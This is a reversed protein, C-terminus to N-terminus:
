YGMYVWGMIPKIDTGLNLIYYYVGAPLRENKNIVGHVNSYGKWSNDYRKKHYVLVGNRNYINLVNEPYHEICGIKFADNMGDNNPTFIDFVIICLPNVSATAVNNRLIFDEPESYLLDASNLYNDGKAIRVKITLTEKAYPLLVPLEWIGDTVHYAGTSSQHSLYIYGSPLPEKVLINAASIQTNNSVSVTFNVLSGVPAQTRDVNKHLAIDICADMFVQVAYKAPTGISSAYYTKGDELRTTAPLSIEREETAYWILDEMGVDIEMITPMAMDCFHQVSFEEPINEHVVEVSNSLISTCDYGNYAMARYVGEKKAMYNSGSVNIITDNRWWIYHTAGKSSINLEVSKGPAVVIRQNESQAYGSELFGAFVALMGLYVRIHYLSFRIHMSLNM